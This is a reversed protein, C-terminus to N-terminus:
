LLCTDFRLLTRDFQKIAEAFQKQKFYVDGIMFFARAGVGARNRGAAEFSKLAEEYKMERDFSWGIEFHAEHRYSDAEELESDIVRQLLGRAQEFNKQQAASQGAHLWVLVSFHDSDFKQEVLPEFAVLAEAYKNQKFLSEGQM